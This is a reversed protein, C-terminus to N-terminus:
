GVVAAPLTHTCHDHLTWFVGNASFKGSQVRFNQMFLYTKLFSEKARALISIHTRSELITSTANINPPFYHPKTNQAISSIKYIIIGKLCAGVRTTHM